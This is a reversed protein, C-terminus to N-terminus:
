QIIKIHWNLRYFIFKKVIEKRNEFTENSTFYESMWIKIAKNKDNNKQNFENLFLHILLTSSETEKATLQRGSGYFM